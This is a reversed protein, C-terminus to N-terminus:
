SRSRRGGSTPFVAEVEAAHSDPKSIKVTYVIPELTQASAAHPLRARDPRVVVAGHWLTARRPM